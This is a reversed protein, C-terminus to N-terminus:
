VSVKRRMRLFGSMAGGAASLALLIGAMFGLGGLMMGARFEPSYWFGKIQSVEPSAAVSREYGARLAETLQSDSAATNHLGYRGILGSIAITVALFVVLTLGVVV